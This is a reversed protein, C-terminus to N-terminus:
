PSSACALRSAISASVIAASRSRVSPGGDPRTCTIRTLWLSIEFPQAVGIGKLVISIEAAAGPPALKSPLVSSQSRRTNACSYVCM